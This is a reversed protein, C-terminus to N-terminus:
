IAELEREIDPRIQYRAKLKLQQLGARRESLQLAFRERWLSDPYRVSWFELWGILNRLASIIESTTSNNRDLIKSSAIADLQSVKWAVVLDVEADCPPTELSLYFEDNPRAEFEFRAGLKKLPDISRLIAKRMAEEPTLLKGTLALFEALDTDLDDLDILM